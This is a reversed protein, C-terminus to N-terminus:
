FGLTDNVLIVHIRNKHKSYRTTLFQCCITEQTQCNACSGTQKCPTNIPFRQANLPAAICRARKLADEEDKVVKNMGVIMIVYSPGYAIAAIRNANGDINVLIGDETIANTSSLFYDAGFIKLEMEKKEEQTKCSDRNYITYHGDILAKKLGIDEVSMSGGWGISSGQPILDLALQLAEQKTHAYYGTMNRKNLGVIVKKALLENRIKIINCM